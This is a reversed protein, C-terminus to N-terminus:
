QSKGHYDRRIQDRNQVLRIIKGMFSLSGFAVIVSERDALLYSLEVAEELSDAATVESHYKGAEQALEYASLARANGPPTVTIIHSGLPSTERLIQDYEKDKLVGIIFLMRKEPFYFRLSDALKRAADANHAGDALFYPKKALVAFRGPWRTELLGKRLQAETVPFGREGLANIVEVALAANEIQHKGALCIELKKFDGYSFRQKEIGYRIAQILEKQVQIMPCHHEKATKELIPLAELEQEATVVISGEKIIGAKEGAIEGLSNGLFQMHDMSITTIACVAPHEVVNTADLRGGLGTELIIIDCNKKKFYWFALATEMEFLTPHNGTEAQVKEAAEKLLEMGEGLAAKTIMSGNVQINERYDDIVPSIYRGTRYGATKLVTSLYAVLSGKGNTGAIHVVPIENQPNGLKECLVKMPELGLVSGYQRLQEIYDMAENYKM